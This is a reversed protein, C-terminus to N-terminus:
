RVPKLEAHAAEEARGFDMKQKRAEIEELEVGTRAFGDTLPDQIQPEADGAMRVETGAPSAHVPLGRQAVLEMAREIPIRIGPQGPTSSYHDLMLDERAHLDATQQSDDDPNVRPEPFSATVQQLERQQMEPNSALNQRKEPTSKGEALQHWKDPPGDSKQLASNIVKGMLFCFIFFVFVSGALGSLFVVVGNVNVDTTEYGPDESTHAHPDHLAPKNPDHHNTPM